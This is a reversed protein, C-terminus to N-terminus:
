ENDNNISPPELIKAYCMRKFNVVKNIIEDASERVIIKKGSKLTLLSEHAIDITEIEDANVVTPRGDLTTLQIM